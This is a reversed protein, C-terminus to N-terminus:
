LCDCVVPTMGPVAKCSKGPYQICHNGGCTPATDRCTQISALALQSMCMAGMVVLLVGCLKRIMM